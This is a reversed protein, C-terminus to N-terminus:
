EEGETSDGEGEGEGESPESVEPQEPTPVVAAEITITSLPMTQGAMTVTM